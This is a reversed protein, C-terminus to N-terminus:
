EELLKLQSIRYENVFSKQGEYKRVRAFRGCDSVWIVMGSTVRETDTRPTRVERGVAIKKKRGMENAGRRRKYFTLDLYDILETYFLGNVHELSDIRVQPSRRLIEHSLGNKTIDPHDLDVIIYNNSLDM